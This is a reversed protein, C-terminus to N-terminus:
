ANMGTKRTITWHRLSYDRRQKMLFADHYSLDCQTLELYSKQKRLLYSFWALSELQPRVVRAVRTNRSWLIMLLLTREMHTHSPKSLILGIHLAREQDKRM